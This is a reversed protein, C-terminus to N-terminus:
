LSASERPHVRPDVSLHKTRWILITLGLILLMGSYLQPKTISHAIFIGTLVNTIMTAPVLLATAVTVPLKKLASYWTTVYGLLLLATLLTWGWQAANLHGLAGSGGKLTLILLLFLSGVAMRAGAVTLSSLHVLTKKAVVNELAWLVTAMLVLAEGTNYNFRPFGLALNGGFLLLLAAIQTFGKREKLAPLALIAVWLFLTKHIFAANLAPIMSLGTFYLIFPVCGGIIAIFLLQLTQSSKLSILEKWRRTLLIIGVLTAGVLANRLATSLIPDKLATVAIKTLFNNTGSFFATALALLIGKSATTM